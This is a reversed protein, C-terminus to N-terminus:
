AYHERYHQVIRLAILNLMLTFMFLSLGLAFASLTKASDFAQDGVLMTVIQVTVTTMSELPNATLNAALGAAMVVIMTEGVARSVALLVSAMLGPLACPLVVKTITEAKTAGLGFSAERMSRPVATIIDDALSSIFPIIMMGMVIGATLASEAAINLGVGAGAQRMFPAIITIAVFGYVVTPIGALLELVPKVITRARSSAYEAMYVACFLGVPVALLLAITTIMFTGALLPLVGFAHRIAEADGSGASQPSWHTGLLFDVLPVQGFFKLSESLVSFIIAMTLLVALAAALWLGAM